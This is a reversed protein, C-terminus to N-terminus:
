LPKLFLLSTQNNSFITFMIQCLKVLTPYTVRSSLDRIYTQVAYTQLDVWSHLKLRNEVHEVQDIVFHLISHGGKSLTASIFYFNTQKQLSKHRNFQSNVAQKFLTQGRETEDHWIEFAVQQVTVNQVVPSGNKSLLFHKTFCHKDTSPYNYCFYSTQRVNQVSLFIYNFSSCDWRPPPIINLILFISTHQDLLTIAPTYSLSDMVWCKSM